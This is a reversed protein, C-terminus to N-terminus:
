ESAGHAESRNEMGLIQRILRELQRATILYAERDFGFPDEVREQPQGAKEGITQIKEALDPLLHRLHDRQHSNMTLVLDAEEVHHESVRRARHSSADIAYDAMLVDRALDNIPEGTWAALGASGALHGAEGALQNFLYEAMPSRCTNGTCVFLVKM